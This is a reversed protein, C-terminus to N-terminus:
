EACAILMNWTWRGNKCDVMAGSQACILGYSCNLGETTCSTGDNPVTAPCGATTPPKACSWTPSPMCPGGACATCVCIDNGVECVGETTCASGETPDTTGCDLSPECFNKTTAWGGSTCTYDTRCEPRVSDGYTCRLGEEATTCTGGSPIAAPCSISAGGGTNTGTSTSGGTSTDVSSGCAVLAAAFPLALLYARM